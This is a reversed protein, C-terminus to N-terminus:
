NTYFLVVGIGHMVKIGGKLLDTKHSVGYPDM